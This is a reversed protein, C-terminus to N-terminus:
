LIFERQKFIIIAGIRDREIHWINCIKRSIFEFSSRKLEFFLFSTTKKVDRGGYFTFSPRKHDHLKPWFFTWFFHAARAFNNIGTRKAMVTMKPSAEQYCPGIVVCAVVWHVMSCWFTDLAPSDCSHFSRSPKTRNQNASYTDRSRLALWLAHCRLM